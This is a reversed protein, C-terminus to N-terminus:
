PGAGAPQRQAPCREHGPALHSRGLPRDPQQQMPPRAAAAMCPLARRKTRMVAQYQGILSPRPLATGSPPQSAIVGIGEHSVQLPQPHLQPHTLPRQLRAGPTRHQGQPIGAAVGLTHATQHQAAGKPQAAALHLTHQLERLRLAAAQAPKRLDPWPHAPRTGRRAPGPQLLQELKCCGIDCGPPHTAQPLPQLTLPHLPTQSATQQMCWRATIRTKAGGPSNYASLLPASNGSQRPWLGAGPVPRIPTFVANLGTVQPVLTKDPRSLQIGTHGAQGSRTHHHVPYM